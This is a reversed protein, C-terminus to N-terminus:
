CAAPRASQSPAQRGGISWRVFCVCTRHSRVRSVLPELSSFKWGDTKVLCGVGDENCFRRANRVWQYAPHLRRFQETECEEGVAGSRKCTNAANALWLRRARSVVFPAATERAWFSRGSVTQAWDMHGTPRWSREGDLGDSSSFQGGLETSHATILASM